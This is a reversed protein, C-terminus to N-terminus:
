KLYLEQTLIQYVGNALRTQLESSDGALICIHYQPLPYEIQQDRSVSKTGVYDEFRHQSIKATSSSQSFQKANIHTIVLAEKSAGLPVSYASTTLEVIRKGWDPDNLDLSLAPPLRGADFQHRPRIDLVLM